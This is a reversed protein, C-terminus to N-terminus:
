TIEGIASGIYCCKFSSEMRLEGNCNGVFSGHNRHRRVLKNVAFVSEKEKEKEPKRQFKGVEGDRGCGSAEDVVVALRFRRGEGAVVGALFRVGVAARGVGNEEEVGFCTGLRYEGM